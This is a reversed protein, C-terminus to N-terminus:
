CGPELRLTGKGSRPRLNYVIPNRNEIEALYKEADNFDQVKKIREPSDLPLKIIELLLGNM